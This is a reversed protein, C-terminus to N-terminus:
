PALRWAATVIEAPIPVEMVRKVKSEGVTEYEIVGSRFRTDVPPCVTVILPSFKPKKVVLGVIVICVVCHEVVDQADDVVKCHKVGTTSPVLRPMNRETEVTTPVEGRKKVNSAGATDYRNCVFPGM